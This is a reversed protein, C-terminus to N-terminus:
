PNVVVAAAALNMATEMVVDRGAVHDAIAVGVERDPIIGRVL